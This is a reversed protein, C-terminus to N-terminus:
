ERQCSTLRESIANMGKNKNTTYHNVNSTTHCNEDIDDNNTNNTNNTNTNNNNNQQQQKSNQNVGLSM